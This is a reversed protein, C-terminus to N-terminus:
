KGKQEVICKYTIQFDTMAKPLGRKTGAGVWGKADPFNTAKYGEGLNSIVFDGGVKGGLDNSPIDETIMKTWGKFDRFESHYVPPMYDKVEKTVEDDGVMFYDEDNKTIMFYSSPKIARAEVILPTDATGSNVV